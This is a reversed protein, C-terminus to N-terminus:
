PVVNAEHGEQIGFQYRCKVAGRTDLRPGFRATRQNRRNSETCRNTLYQNGDSFSSLRRELHARQKLIHPGGEDRNGVMHSNRELQRRFLISLLYVAPPRSHPHSGREKVFIIWPILLERTVKADFKPLVATAVPTRHGKVPVAGANTVTERVVDTLSDGVSTGNWHLTVSSRNGRRHERFEICLHRPLQEDRPYDEDFLPAAM